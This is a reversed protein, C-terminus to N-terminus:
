AGDEVVALKAATQWWAESYLSGRSGEVVMPCLVHMGVMWELRDELMSESHLLGAVPGSLRQSASM